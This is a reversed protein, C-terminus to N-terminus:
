SSVPIPAQAAASARIKAAILPDLMAATAIQAHHAGAELAERVEALSSIGGVAILRLSSGRRRIVGALMRVEALRRSRICAGGIGRTLGGFLQAGQADAVRASISNVTSLADAHGDVAVVFAEAEAAGEFLGIKLILPLSGTVDRLRAAIEASAEPSRYIQGENTCVNPCSLNAEVAEAGSDRACRACRAFDRAMDDLTWGPQPTAVVSVVLAQGPALGRRAREVDRTWIAPDKSPM